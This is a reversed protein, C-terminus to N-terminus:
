RAQPDPSEASQKSAASENHNTRKTRRRHNLIAQLIAELDEKPYYPIGKIAAERASDVIKDQNMKKTNPETIRHQTSHQQRHNM